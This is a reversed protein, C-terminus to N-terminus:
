HTVEVMMLYLFYLFLTTCVQYIIHLENELVFCRRARQLEAFVLLGEDPSLSSSLVAAGLQSPYFKEVEMGDICCVFLCIYIYPQPLSSSFVAAGLQSPYFKEVETGDIFCVFLCIYIYPQPLSSSLVAAGLQSPYFKEVEMGDICCVFFHVHIALLVFYRVLKNM